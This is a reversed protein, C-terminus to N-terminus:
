KKATLICRELSGWGILTSSSGDHLRLEYQKKTSVYVVYSYDDLYAIDKERDVVRM